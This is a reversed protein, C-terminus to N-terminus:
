AKGAIARGLDHVDTQATKIDRIVGGNFFVLIRDAVMLIEELESSSFVIATKKERYHYLHEWVWLTSELDLGRTPKELLLLSPADPLFSLLLRQQNGGSLSEVPMGPKGKIRFQEIRAQAQQEADNWRVRFGHSAKLAFHESITLGTILGEELRSTPLFTVGKNQYAICDKGAMPEGQLRIAGSTPVKLGAALRLFVGQGSGELGALAVVEKERIVVSCGRLGARDGTASVNEMNLLPAGAATQSPKLPSPVSGFMMKLLTETDFPREMEGTVRGKRLVSVRDCLREIDELKHSVLILTKGEKALAKLAQFLTEKQFSSIGTTPEDLILVNAGLSLLRIIELQQREGTTLKQVPTEPPLSFELHLCLSEFRKQTAMRNLWFGRTQGIMFNELVSLVPFDVPEQYLMGIGLRSVEAPTQYETNSGDIRILGRTKPTFGALVKMLTSKGAGNEGLIGHIYGPAFCISIGQNAKLPGYEKHIDILEVAMRAGPDSAM